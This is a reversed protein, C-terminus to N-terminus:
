IVGRVQLKKNAADHNKLYETYVKEMDAMHGVFVSRCLDRSGKRFEFKEQLELWKTVQHLLPSPSASKQAKAQQDM